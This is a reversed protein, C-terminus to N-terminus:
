LPVVVSRDVYSPESGAGVASEPPKPNNKLARYLAKCRKQQVAKFIPSGYSNIQDLRSEIQKQFDSKGNM